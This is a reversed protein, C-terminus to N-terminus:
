AIAPRNTSDPLCGHGDRALWDDPVTRNRVPGFCAYIVKRLRRILDVSEARSLGLWQALECPGFSMCRLGLVRANFLVVFWPGSGADLSRGTEAAPCKRLNRHTDERSPLLFLM